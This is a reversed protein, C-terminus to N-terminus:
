AGSSKILVAKKDFFKIVADSEVVFTKLHFNSSAVAFKMTISRDESVDKLKSAVLSQLKETEVKSHGRENFTNGIGSVFISHTCKEKIIKELQRAIVDYLQYPSFVRLVM